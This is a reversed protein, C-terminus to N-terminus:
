RLTLARDVLQQQIKKHQAAYGTATAASSTRGLYIPRQTNKYNLSHLVDELRRDIFYWSGMNHPEEQCWVVENVNKYNQLAQELAQKPFPYLQEIRVLAVDRINKETRAELLEYYIKGSCLVVRKVGTGQATQSDTEGIVHQFRSGTTFDSFSSVALKHRLLSKPTMVILPKRINRRIQRRLLHFYNAPTSPYAVQWNDEASLQLYRELRASSHEPGQGEYGHPLLMVLGSMRLWKAEGSSIFQDIMVQAGNSFDGFQAEWMILKRPDTISFGYEFGLVAVESLPSNIVEIEAQDEQIHNLSIYPAETAQDVLIAHRQSFTGRGSDQGSLRVANGEVLLTGCALAEAAAWDVNEGSALVQKKNEILRSLRNHVTFGEPYNTMAYAVKKLTEESVSTDVELNENTAIDFGAWRGDLWDAKDPKYSDMQDFQEQFAEKTKKTLQTYGDESIVGEAILKHAYLKATSPHKAIAQYMLPQTFAPEDMENHGHRRYCFIDIVVDKKFTQRFDMALKSVFAVAEVDDGNVHFIPAQIMKAVDSCYPSSRSHMPSTTFGIQNNIVVHITGGVRYGPLESLILTEPVIGQGAFAADGHLLFGMVQAREDDKLLEQKARVKGVVVPNVAELHSPNPTLSLHVKRGGFTRNASCGLHYKVDGSGQVDKVPDADQFEYFISQLPKGIVNAIVNLRGRHAMGFIVEKMGTEAARDLITEISAIVSEGGEIGFRKAGPYKVGLFGEFGEARVLSELLAKKQETNFSKRKEINEIRSQIWERQPQEQIHMYEFGITDGYAETLREVVKGITTTGFGLENNLFVKKHYSEPTFGYTKPDLEPLYPIQRLELPDLNCQMHGRVRHSRIFMLARLSDRTLNILDESSQETAAATLAASPVENRKSVPVHHPGWSAGQMEKLLSAADDELNAFVETWSSDISNPNKLYQAYLNSLFDANQGTFFTEKHTTRLSM